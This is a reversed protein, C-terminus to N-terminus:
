ILQPHHENRGTVQRGTERNRGHDGTFSAYLEALESVSVNTGKM